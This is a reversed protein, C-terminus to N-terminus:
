GGSSRGSSNLSTGAATIAFLSNNALFDLGVGGACSVYVGVVVAIM